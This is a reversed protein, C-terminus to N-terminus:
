LTEQLHLWVRQSAEGREAFFARSDLHIRETEDASMQLFQAFDDASNVVTGIARDRMEVAEDLLAINPGYAVPITYVAPEIVSHVGAGFGAGVYACAGYGYLEALIGVSDVITVDARCEKHASYREYTLGYRDLYGELERLSQEDVEHPVALIHSVPAGSEIADFAKRIGGFVVDYDSPIISGLVIMDRQETVIHNFSNARAREAVRDFRTDGTVIVSSRGGSIEQLSKALRESGCTILDFSGYVRRNFGRLISLGRVSKEHMNGNIYAIKVKLLKAVAIHAPWVDHRNVVFLAPKVSMFFAFANLFSDLPLYAVADFLTSEKEKRFITASYVTQFIFHQQRDILPLLPKLQEFEGGSAAHIVIVKKDGRNAKLRKLDAFLIPLEVRFRERGKPSFLAAMFVVGWIIPSMLLYLIWLLM